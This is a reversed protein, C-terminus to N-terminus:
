FKSQGKAAFDKINNERMRERTRELKREQEREITREITRYEISRNM